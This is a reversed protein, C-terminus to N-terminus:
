GKKAKVKAKPKTGKKRKGDSIELSELEELRMQLPSLWKEDLEALVEDHLEEGYQEKLHSEPSYAWTLFDKLLEIKQKLYARKEALEKLTAM